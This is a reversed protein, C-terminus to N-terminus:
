ATGACHLTEVSCCFSPLRFPSVGFLSVIGQKKTVLKFAAQSCAATCRRELTLPKPKALGVKVRVMSLSELLSIRFHFCGKAFFDM